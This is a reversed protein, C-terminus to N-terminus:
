TPFLCPLGQSNDMGLVDDLMGVIGVHVLSFNTTLKVVISLHTGDEMWGGMM